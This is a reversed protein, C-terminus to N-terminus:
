PRALTTRGPKPQSSSADFVKLENSLRAFYNVDDELGHGEQKYISAYGGWHAITKAALLLEERLESLKAKLAQNEARLREAKQLILSEIRAVASEIPEEPPNQCHSKARPVPVGDADFWKRMEPRKRCAREWDTESFLERMIQMQAGRQTCCERLYVIENNNM